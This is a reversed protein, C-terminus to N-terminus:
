RYGGYPNQDKPPRRVSSDYGLFRRDAPPPPQSFGSPPPPPAFPGEYRSGQGQDRGDSWARDGHSFPQVTQYQGEIRYPSIKPDNSEHHEFSTPFRVPTSVSRSYHAADHPFHSQSPPPYVGPPPPLPQPHPQPPPGRHYDYRTRADRSRDYGRYGRYDGRGRAPVSGRGYEHGGYGSYGGRRDDFGGRGGHGGRYPAASASRLDYEVMRTAPSMHHQGQRGFRRMFHRHAPMPFTYEPEVVREPMIVNPLIVSRHPKADPLFFGASTGCTSAIDQKHTYPHRSKGDVLPNKLHEGVAVFDPDKSLSGSFGFFLTTDIAVKEDETLSQICPFLVHNMSVYLVNVGFQNRRREDGVLKEEYPRLEEVLRKHDVWPLLAIGEWAFKKGEYDVDFETPYIDIIPSSPNVMLDQFEKPLAHKSAPPLVSMLQEVPTFPEGKELSFDVSDVLEFDSAFPPYHYPYYWGWSACGAYYYQLVWHMGVLYSEVIERVKDTQTDVDIDFKRKYYRSKWGPMGFMIGDEIKDEIFNNERVVEHLEEEMQKTAVEDFEVANSKEEEEDEPEEELISAGTVEQKEENVDESEGEMEDKELDEKEDEKGDDKTDAKEEVDAMKPRKPSPEDEKTEAFLSKRLVAAADENSEQKKSDEDRERKHAEPRAADHSFRSRQQDRGGRKYRQQRQQRAKSEQKAVERCQFVEDEVSGLEKVFKRVAEYNMHGEKTLYGGMRPLMGRYLELLRDIAGERIDMTPLRPLFDNGVFFCMFVFDDIVREFDYEFPLGPVRMEMELYERLVNVRLLEFPKHIYPTVHLAGDLHIPRDEKLFDKKKKFVQERLITFHPEHTALGLMILDADLGYLVHKTNPDHSPEARQERIYEMIKHEGEGPVSADSLIIVINKWGPDSAIKLNIYFRLAKALDDMFKTGPTIVNSDFAENKKLEVFKGSKTYNEFLSMRLEQKKTEDQASRFRRSRQQVMKARPAVGDIAMYLLRRPRIINFLVDIYEFVEEFMESQTKPAPRDEPHSCNHIISNMDLYLTDFEIGNPNPTSTDIPQPSSASSTSSIPLEVEAPIVARPYKDLLWRFFAPVGM